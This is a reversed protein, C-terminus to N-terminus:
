ENVTGGGGGRELGVLGSSVFHLLIILDVMKVKGVEVEAGGFLMLKLMLEDDVVGVAASVEWAM